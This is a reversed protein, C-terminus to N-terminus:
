TRQNINMREVEDENLAFIQMNLYAYKNLNISSNSARAAKAGMYIFVRTHNPQDAILPSLRFNDDAFDFDLCFPARWDKSEEINMLSNPANKNGIWLLGDTTQRDNLM